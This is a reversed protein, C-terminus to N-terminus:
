GEFNQGIREMDERLQRSARDDVTLTLALEIVVHEERALRDPISDAEIVLKDVFDRIEKLPTDVLHAASDMVSQMDKPVGTGRLKAAIDLIEEYVEVFREAIHVILTRDGPQGLPGFARERAQPNTIIMLNGMCASFDTMASKLLNLAEGENLHQGTRRAYGIAHDLYKPELRQRRLWIEGAYLMHEWGDPRQALLERKQEATRPSRLIPPNPSTIGPTASLKQQIREILKEPSTTRADIYAVTPRLGPLESDDIRVPLIYAGTDTLARAQASQREHQTWPKTVYHRSVFMVTFRARKRYVDDLVAYLDNGWLEAAAYEDYFLRVGLEQLSAAIQGVYARDEGAYSLAIDYDFVQERM